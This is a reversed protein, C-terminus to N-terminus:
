IEGDLLEDGHDPLGEVEDLSVFRRAHQMTEYDAESMQEPEPEAKVRSRASKKKRAPAEDSSSAVEIVDDGKSASSTTGDGFNSDTSSKAGIGAGDGFISATSSKINDGNGNPFLKRATGIADKPSGNKTTTPAVKGKGKTSAGGTNRRKPAPTTQYEDDSHIDKANYDSDAGQDDSGEESMTVKKSGRKRKSAASTSARVTKSTTPTSKTSASAKGKSLGVKVDAPNKGEDLAEQQLRGLTKLERFQWEIGGATSEGFLKQIEGTEVPLDGPDKGAARCAVQMKGLQKVPRLRHDVASGTTGGGMLAALDKFDLKVKGNISALVAALLRTSAEYTKFNTKNQAPPM